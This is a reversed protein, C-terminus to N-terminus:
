VNNLDSKKSHTFNVQQRHEEVVQLVNQLHDEDRVVDKFDTIMKIGREASENVVQLNKVFDRLTRYDEFLEWYKPKLQLWEQKKDLGLLHFILWSRSGILEHLFPIGKQVDINPFKPKGIPFSSPRPTKFLQKAMISRSWDSRYEDFMNIICWEETLYWLHRKISELGANGMKEDIEDRVVQM